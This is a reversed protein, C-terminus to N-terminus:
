SSLKSHNWSVVRQPQCFIAIRNHVTADLSEQDVAQGRRSRISHALRMMLDKETTVEATGALEVGCLESYETGTAVLFTARPDRMVNRAKQSRKKTLVGLRGDVFGYYMAVSHITGDRHITSMVVDQTHEQLFTEIEAPTMRVEARRNGPRARASEVSTTM